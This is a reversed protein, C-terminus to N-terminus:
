GCGHYSPDPGRQYCADPIDGDDEDDRDDEGVCADCGDPVDDGDSDVANDGAFCIDCADGVGDSVVVPEIVFILCAYQRSRVTM